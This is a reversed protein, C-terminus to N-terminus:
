TLGGAATGAWLKGTRDKFLTNVQNNPLSHANSADHKFRTFQQSEENFRNLGNSTGVWLVKNSDEGISKIFNDSISGPIKPDYRYVTLQYGDYRNLGDRTGFWLFGRSDQFICEITSNSLGQENQIHKFSIGPQQAFVDTYGLPHFLLTATLLLSRCLLQCILRCDM